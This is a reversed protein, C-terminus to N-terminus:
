STLLGRVTMKDYEPFVVPSPGNKGALVLFVGTFGDSQSKLFDPLTKGNKQWFIGLNLRIFHGKCAWIRTRAAEKKVIL